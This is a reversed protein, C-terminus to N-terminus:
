RKSFIPGVYMGPQLYIKDGADFSDLIESIVTDILPHFEAITYMLFALCSLNVKKGHESLQSLVDVGAQRVFGESHKLLDAIEPIASAILPRFEAIITM